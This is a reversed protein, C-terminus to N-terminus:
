EMLVCESDSRQLLKEEYTRYSEVTSAGQEALREEVTSVYGGDDVRLGRLFTAKCIWIEPSGSPRPRTGFHYPRWYGHREQWLQKLCALVERDKRHVAQVLTRCLWTWGELSDKNDVSDLFDALMRVSEVSGCGELNYIYDVYDLVLATSPDMGCIKRLIDIRKEAGLGHRKLFTYLYIHPNLSEPNKALYEELVSEAKDLHGYFELMHILKLIFIDFPGEHDLLMRFNDMARAAITLGHYAEVGTAEEETDKESAQGSALPLWEIYDLIGFYGRLIHDVRENKRIIKKHVRLHDQFFTRLYAHESRKLCYILYELAMAKKDATRLCRCHRVFFNTKHPSSLEHNEFLLMGAKVILQDAAYMGVTLAELVQALEGFKLGFCLAQALKGLFSARGQVRKISQDIQAPPLISPKVTTFSPAMLADLHPKWHKLPASSPSRVPAPNDQVERGCAGM